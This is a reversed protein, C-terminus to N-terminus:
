QTVKVEAAKLVKETEAAKLVKEMKKNDETERTWTYLQFILNPRLLPPHPSLILHPFSPRRFKVQMSYYDRAKSEVLSQM